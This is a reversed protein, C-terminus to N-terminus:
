QQKETQKEKAEVPKNNEDLEKIKKLQSKEVTYIVVRNTYLTSDDKKMLVSSILIACNLVIIIVLLTIIGTLVNASKTNNIDEGKSM